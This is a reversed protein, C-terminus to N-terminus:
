LLKKLAFSHLLLPRGEEDSPGNIDPSERPNPSSLQVLGRADISENL